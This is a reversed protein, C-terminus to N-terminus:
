CMNYTYKGLSLRFNRYYFRDLMLLINVTHYLTCLVRIVQRLSRSSARQNAKPVRHRVPVFGSTTCPVKRRRKGRINPSTPRILSVSLFGSDPRRTNLSTSTSLSPLTRQLKGHSTFVTMRRGFPWTERRIRVRVQLYHVSHHGSFRVYCLWDISSTLRCFPTM